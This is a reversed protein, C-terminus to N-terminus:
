DARRTIPMKLELIGYLLTIITGNAKKTQIDFNYIGTRLDETDSPELVIKTEGALPNTHITINKKIDAEEDEKWAYKKLTFYITWGTIPVVVGESDTFTLDYQRDKGIFLPNLTVKSAM